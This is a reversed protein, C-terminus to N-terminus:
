SDVNTTPRPRVYARAPDQLWRCLQAFCNNYKRTSSTPDVRGDRRQVLGLTDSFVSEDGLPIVNQRDTNNKFRWLSLVALVDAETVLAGRALIKRGTRERAAQKPWGDSWYVAVNNQNRFIPYVAHCFANDRQEFEILLRWADSPLDPIILRLHGIRSPPPPIDSLRARGLADM